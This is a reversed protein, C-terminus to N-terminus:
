TSGSVVHSVGEKGLTEKPMNYTAEASVKTTVIISAHLVDFCSQLFHQVCSEGLETEKNFSM